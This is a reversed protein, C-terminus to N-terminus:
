LIRELAVYHGSGFHLTEEALDDGDRKTLSISTSASGYFEGCLQCVHLIPRILQGVADRDLSRIFQRDPQKPLM